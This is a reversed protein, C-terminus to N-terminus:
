GHSDTCQKIQWLLEVRTVTPCYYNYIDRQLSDAEFQVDENENTWYRRKAGVRRALVQSVRVEVIKLIQEAESSTM